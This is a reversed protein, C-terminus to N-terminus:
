VGQPVCRMAQQMTARTRQSFRCVSVRCCLRKAEILEQCVSLPPQGIRLTQACSVKRKDGRKKGRFSSKSRYFCCSCAHQLSEVSEQLKHTRRSLSSKPYTRHQSIREHIYGTVVVVCMIVGTAEARDTNRDTQSVQLM